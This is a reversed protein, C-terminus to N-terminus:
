NREHVTLVQGGTVSVTAVDATIENSIGRTSGAVLPAGSLPWRLGTSQCEAPGGFALVSLLAGNKHRFSRSEGTRIATITARSTRWDLAISREKLLLMANALTHAMRGGTGGIITARAYGAKSVADIALELDTADKAVPHQEIVVGSAAARALAAASVSDMDGIVLDPQIGLQYAQDLGSDAAIVYDPTALRSAIGPKIPNGGAIILAWEPKTDDM